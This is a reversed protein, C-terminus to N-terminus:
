FWRKFLVVSGSSSKVLTGRLAAALDTDGGDITKASQALREAQDELDNMESLLVPKAAMSKAFPYVSLKAPEGKFVQGLSNLLSQRAQKGVSSSVDLLVPIEESSSSEIRVPDALALFLLVAAAAHLLCALFSRKKWLLIIMVAGVVPPAAWLVRPQLFQVQRLISEFEAIM